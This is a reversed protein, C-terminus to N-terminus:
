LSLIHIWSKKAKDAKADCTASLTKIKIVRLQSSNVDSSISTRTNDTELASTPRPVPEEVSGTIKVKHGVYGDINQMAVLKMASSPKSIILVYEGSRGLLCGESTTEYHKSTQRAPDPSPVSQRARAQPQAVAFVGFTCSALSVVLINKNVQCAPEGPVHRKM